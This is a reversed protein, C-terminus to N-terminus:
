WYIANRMSQYNLQNPRYGRRGTKTMSQMGRHGTKGNWFGRLYRNDRIVEIAGSCSLRIGQPHHYRRISAEPTLFSESNIKIEV